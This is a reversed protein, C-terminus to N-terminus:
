WSYDTRKSVQEAYKLMAFCERSFSSHATNMRSGRLRNQEGCNVCSDDPRLGTDNARRCTKRTHGLLGCHTCQMLNISNQVRCLGYGVRIRKKSLLEKWLAPDCRVLAYKEQAEDSRYKRLQLFKVQEPDETYACIDERVEDETLDDPIGHILVQPLLARPRIAQLQRSNCTDQLKRADQDNSCVVRLDGGKMRSVAAPLIGERRFNLKKGLESDNKIVIVRDNVAGSATGSPDRSRTKGIANAYSQVPNTAQVFDSIRIRRGSRQSVADRPTQRQDTAESRTQTSEAQPRSQLQNGLPPFEENNFHSVIPRSHSGGLPPFEADNLPAAAPGSPDPARNGTNAKKKKGRSATNNGLRPPPHEPVTPLILGRSQTRGAGGSSTGRFPGADRTDGPGLVVRKVTEVVSEATYVRRDSIIEDQLQKGCKMLYDALNVFEDRLSGSFTEKTIRRHMTAVYEYISTLQRGTAATLAREMTQQVSLVVDFHPIDDREIDRSSPANVASPQTNAIPPPQAQAKNWPLPRGTVLSDRPQRLVAGQKPRTGTGMWTDLTRDDTVQPLESFMRPLTALEKEVPEENRSREMSRSRQPLPQTFSGISTQHTRNSLMAAINQRSVDQRSVDGEDDDSEGLCIVEEGSTQDLPGAGERNVRGRVATSIREAVLRFHDYGTLLRQVEKKEMNARTAAMKVRDQVVDVWFEAAQDLIDPIEVSEDMIQSKTHKRRVSPVLEASIREIQDSLSDLTAKVFSRIRELTAEEDAGGSKSSATRPAVVAPRTGSTVARDRRPAILAPGVDEDDSGGNDLGVINVLDEVDEGNDSDPAALVRNALDLIRHGTVPLPSKGWLPGTPRSVAASHIADDGHSIRERVADTLRRAVLQEPNIRKFCEQVMNDKVGAGVASRFAEDYMEAYWLRGAQTYIDPLEKSDDLIQARTLTGRIKQAYEAVLNVICETPPVFSGDIVSQVLATMEEDTLTSGASLVLNTIEGGLVTTESTFGGTLDERTIDPFTQSRRLGSRLNVVADQVANNCAKNVAEKLSLRLYQQRCQSAPGSDRMLGDAENAVKTRALLLNKIDKNIIIKYKRDVSNYFGNRIDEPIAIDKDGVHEGTQLNFESQLYSEALKYVMACMNPFHGRIARQIVEHVASNVDKNSYMPTNALREWVSQM